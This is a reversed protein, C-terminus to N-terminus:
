HGDSPRSIGQNSSFSKVWRDGASGVCWAFDTSYRTTSFFKRRSTSAILADSCPLIPRKSAAYAYIRRWPLIIRGTTPSYTRMGTRARRPSAAQTGSQVAVSVLPSYYMASRDQDLLSAFRRDTSSPETTSRSPRLLHRHSRILQIVRANTAKETRSRLKGLLVCGTAREVLTIVCHRDHSAQRHPSRTTRERAHAEAM